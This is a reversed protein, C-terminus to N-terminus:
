HEPMDKFTENIVLYDRRFINALHFILREDLKVSSELSLKRILDIM